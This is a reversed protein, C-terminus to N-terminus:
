VDWLPARCKRPLFKIFSFRQCTKLKEWEVRRRAAWTGNLYNFESNGNDAGPVTANVHPPSLTINVHVGRSNDLLHPVVDTMRARQLVSCSSSGDDRRQQVTNWSPCLPTTHMSFLRLDNDIANPM